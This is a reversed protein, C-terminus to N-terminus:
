TLAHRWLIRRAGHAIPERSNKDHTDSRLNNELVNRPSRLSGSASTVMGSTVTGAFVDATVSNFVSGDPRPQFHERRAYNKFRVRWFASGLLRRAQTEM